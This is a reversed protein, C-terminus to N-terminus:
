VIFEQLIHCMDQVQSIEVCSPSRPKPQLLNKSNIQGSVLSKPLL